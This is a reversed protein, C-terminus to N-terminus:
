PKHSRWAKHQTLAAKSLFQNPTFSVNLMYTPDGPAM